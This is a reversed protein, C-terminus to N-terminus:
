SVDVMALVSDVPLTESLSPPPGVGCPFLADVYAELDDEAQASIDTFCMQRIQAVQAGFEHHASKNGSRAHCGCVKVEILRFRGQQFCGTLRRDCALSFTACIKSTVM